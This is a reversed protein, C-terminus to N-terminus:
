RSEVSIGKEYGEDRREGGSIIEVRDGGGRGRGEREKERKKEEVRWM